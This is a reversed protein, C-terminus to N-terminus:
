GKKIQGQLGDGCFIYYSFVAHQNRAFLLASLWLVAGVSKLECM